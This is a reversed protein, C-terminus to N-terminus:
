YYPLRILLSEFLTLVSAGLTIGLIGGIEGILSVLDYSIYSYHYEVEPNEFTVYVLTKNGFWTKEVKLNATFRTSECTPVRACNSETKLINDLVEVTVQNSCNAVGKPIVHDLHQGSYLIPISCNYRELISETEEISQCTYREYKGCPVRRTSDRKIKKKRLEVKYAKKIETSSVALDGNLLSADPLDFRTHLMFAVMQWTNNQSMVFEIGPRWATKLPIYKFKDVKSLDFTYCPGFGADLFVRTWVKKYFHRLNVYESGTWLQVM